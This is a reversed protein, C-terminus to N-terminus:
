WVECRTSPNNMHSGVPCKFVDAFAPLNILPGMVRFPAPSHPDTQVQVRRYADTAKECWTQAFSVFFLQGNTFGPVISPQTIDELQSYAHFSNKIGGMDAINEGQTLRGNIFVGPIVEFKSYQDIVCQVKDNFKQNTASDWWNTLLGDGNYLRGQNDFGHTLEHGMVLGIGGYNMSHPYSTNFFPQQLIGAPFVMQNRSPDYYANVTPATMGWATKDSPKGITQYSKNRQYVTSSLVNTFFDSNVSVETYNDPNEPGGILHTVQTLKNIARTSTQNDMWAINEIDYNMAAIIDSLIKIADQYSKGPFAQQEFFKGLLEGLSQDITSICQSWLPAPEQQGNLIRNYFNFHEDRFPKSLLPSRNRLVQWMLYPQWAKEMAPIISTLNSFFSPVTVTLRDVDVNFDLFLTFYSLWDLDPSLNAFESISMNNYTTFPDTLQDGPVTFYAIASEVSYALAATVQPNPDNILTFMNIIHKQYQQRIELSQSDNSTYLSPYPLGLGGQDFQAINIEPDEADIVPSMTFFMDIGRFSFVAITEMLSSIDTVANIINIEDEIPVWGQNDISTTDMCSTYFTHLKPHALAQIIALLIEQNHDEISTFSRTLRSKDSPLPTQTIWTGCSFQYFNDCPDV